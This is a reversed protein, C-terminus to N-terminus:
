EDESEEDQFKKMENKTFEKLSKAFQKNEDESLGKTRACFRL